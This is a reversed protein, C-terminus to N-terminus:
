RRAVSVPRGPWEQHEQVSETPVAVARGGFQVVEEVSSDWFEDVRVAPRGVSREDHERGLVSRRRVVSRVRRVRLAVRGWM